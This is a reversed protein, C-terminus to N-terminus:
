SGGSVLTYPFGPTIKSLVLRLSGKATWLASSMWQLNGIRGLNSVATTAADKRTLSVSKGYNRGSETPFPTVRYLYM